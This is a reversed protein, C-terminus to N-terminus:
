KIHKVETIKYDCDIGLGYFNKCRYIAEIKDKGSIICKQKNWKGNTLYDNYEFLIEFTM